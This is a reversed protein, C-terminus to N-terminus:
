EDARAVWLAPGGGFLVVLGTVMAMLSLATNGLLGVTTARDLGATGWQWAVIPSVLLTGILVGVVTVFGLEVMVLGVAQHTMAGLAKMLGIETRRGRVLIYVNAIYLVGAMVYGLAVLTKLVWRPTTIAEPNSASTSSRITRIDQPPTAFVPAPGFPVQNVLDSALVVTAGAALTRLRETVQQSQATDTLKVAYAVPDPLGSYGIDHLLKELVDEALFIEPTSWYPQETRLTPVLSPPPIPRQALGAATAQKGAWLGVPSTPISYHGGVGLDTTTLAGFDYSEGDTGIGPIDVTIKEGPEPVEFDVIYPRGRIVYTWSGNFRDYGHDRDDETTFDPRYGDLLVVPETGHDKAFYSGAVIREDFGLERDLKLQRARLLVPIRREGESPRYLSEIREYVPIRVKATMGPRLGEPDKIVVVVDFTSGEGTPTGRYAIREVTADYRKRLAEVAVRAPQGERLSVIDSEGIGVTVQFEDEGTITLLGGTATGSHVTEGSRVNLQTVVGSVPATVRLNELQEVLGQLMLRAKQLRLRQLEVQTSLGQGGAVLLTNGQDIMDGVKVQLEEVIGARSAVVTRVGYWRFEGRRRVLAGRTDIDVQGTMAQKLAGPNHAVLEVDYWITGEDPRGTDLVAIVEAPVGDKAFGDPFIRATDGVETREMEPKSVPAVFLIQTDDALRVLPTGSAFSQGEQILVETVRGSKESTVAFQSSAITEIARGRDVGLLSAVQEEALRVDLLAQQVQLELQSNSLDVLVDGKQVRDGLRVHIREATGPSAAGVVREECPTVVGTVTLTEVVDDTKGVGWDYTQRGEFSIFAPVVVYPYIWEVEPQQSIERLINEMEAREAEAAGYWLMEPHFAMFPDHITQTQSRWQYELDRPRSNYPGAMRSPLVLVEGGLFQREALAALGPTGQSLVAGGFYIVTALVVSFIALSLRGLNRRALIRGWHLVV